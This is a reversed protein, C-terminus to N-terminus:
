PETTGAARWVGGIKRCALAGGDVLKTHANPITWSALSVTGGSVNWFTAEDGNSGVGAAGTLTAVGALLEVTRGIDDAILTHSANVTKSSPNRVRIAGQIDWAGTIVADAEASVDSAWWTQTAVWNHGSRMFKRSINGWDGNNSIYLLHGYNENGPRRSANIWIYYIVAANPTFPANSLQSGLAELYYWGRLSHWAVNNFDGYTAPSLETSALDAMTAFVNAASPTAAGDLAAKQDTTPIPAHDIATTHLTLLAGGLVNRTEKGASDRDTVPFMTNTTPTLLPYATEDHINPM